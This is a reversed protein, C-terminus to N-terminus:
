WYSKVALPTVSVDKPSRGLYRDYMLPLKCMNSLQRLLRTGEAKLLGIHQPYNVGLTDVSVAMSDTIADKLQTDIEDLRTCINLAKIPLSTPPFLPVETYGLQELVTDLTTM